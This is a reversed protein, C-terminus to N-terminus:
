LGGTELLTYEPLPSKTASKEFSFLINTGYSDIGLVTILAKKAASSLFKKEWGPTSALPTKLAIILLILFIILEFLSSPAEVIVWCTAFFKKSVM